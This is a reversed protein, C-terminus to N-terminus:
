NRPLGLMLTLSRGDRAEEVDLLIPGGGLRVGFLTMPVPKNLHKMATNLPVDKTTVHVNFATYRPM